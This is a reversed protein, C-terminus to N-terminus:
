KMSDILLLRHAGKTATVENYIRPLCGVSDSSKRTICYATSAIQQTAGRAM